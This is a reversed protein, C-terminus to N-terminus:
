TAAASGPRTPTATRYRGSRFASAAANVTSNPAQRELVSTRPTGDPKTFVISHQGRPIAGPLQESRGETRGREVAAAIEDDHKKTAAATRKDAIGHMEEWIDTPELSKKNGRTMARAEIEAVITRTNLREGTLEFHEQAIQMLEAPLTLALKTLGGVTANLDETKMYGSMDPAGAVPPTVVTPTIGALIEEANLGASTAVTTLKTRLAVIDQQSKVLDGQLKTNNAKEAATMDGWAVMEENLKQEAAKLADSQTKVADMHKSYDGQRLYGKEVKDARTEFQPLLTTADAESFGLEEQLWKLVDDKKWAM